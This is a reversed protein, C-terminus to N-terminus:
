VASELTKAAWGPLEFESIESTYGEYTNTKICHALTYLRANNIKRGYEILEHPVSYIACLYPPENECAFFLFESKKKESVANYVDLYYAAQMGYEYTWVEKGFGEPSADKTSKVDVLANGAPTIDPRAKRLLGTAEHKAVLTLEIRANRMIDTYRPHQRVSMGMGLLKNRDDPKLITKGSAETEDRWAKAENTQFKDYKSLIHRTDFLSPELCATHFAYGLQQAKSADDDVQAKSWQYFAPAKAVLKLDSRSIAPDAQYIEPLINEHIGQALPM